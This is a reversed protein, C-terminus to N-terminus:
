ANRRRAGFIATGIRVMTAGEEVAVEFDNSMGMSLDEMMVRPINEAQIEQALRRLRRFYPRAEEPDDLLPAMGMLGRIQLGELPAMARVLAPAEEPAVGFKSAEGAINVEVLVDLHKGLARARRDIEIALELRDVSHIMTFLWVATRVKNTQLHGILHWEARNGIEQYKERAEQVRNEGIVRVGAALAAEIDAVPMNKTVAVLTVGAPDRGARAAAAEIRERVEALNQAIDTGM